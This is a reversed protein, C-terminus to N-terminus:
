FPIAPYYIFINPLKMMIKQPSFAIIQISSYLMEELVSAHILLFSYNRKGIPIFYFLNRKIGNMVILGSQSDVVFSLSKQNM